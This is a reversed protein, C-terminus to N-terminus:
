LEALLRKAREQEDRYLRGFNDVALAKELDRRAAETEGRQHYLFGRWYLIPVPPMELAEDL